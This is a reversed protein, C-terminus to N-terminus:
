RSKCVVGKKRATHKQPLLYLHARCGSPCDSAGFGPVPVAVGKKDAIRKSIICEAGDEFAEEGLWQVHRNVLLYDIHWHLKGAKGEALRRHRAIRTEIGCHASGVYVYKGVPFSVSGLAGVDLKLLRKVKIYLLYAGQM